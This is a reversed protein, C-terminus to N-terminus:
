PKLVAMQIGHDGFETSKETPVHIVLKSDVVVSHIMGYPGFGERRGNRYVGVKEKSGSSHYNIWTGENKGMAFSGRSSLQGNPYWSYSEGHKYGSKYTVKAGLM